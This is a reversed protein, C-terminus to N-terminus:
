STGASGARRSTTSRAACGPSSSPRTSSTSMTPVVGLKSTANAMLVALPVPDHKPNVGHKLDAQMTGGYATSVMLKDEIIVYDFKARELDKPPACVSLLAFTPQLPAEASLKRLEASTDSTGHMMKYSWM